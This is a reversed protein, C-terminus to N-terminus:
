VGVGGERWAVVQCSCFFTRVQWHPCGTSPGAAETMAGLRCSAVHRKVPPAACTVHTGGAGGSPSKARQITGSINIDLAFVCQTSAGVGDAALNEAAEQTASANVQRDSGNGQRGWHAGVKDALRM